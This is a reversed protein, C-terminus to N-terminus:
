EVLPHHFLVLRCSIFICYTLVEWFMATTPVHKCASNLMIMADPDQMVFWTYTVFTTFHLLLSSKFCLVSRFYFCYFFHHRSLCIHPLFMSDFFFYDFRIVNFYMVCALIYHCISKHNAKWTDIWPVFCKSVSICAWVSHPIVSGKANENIFYHTM